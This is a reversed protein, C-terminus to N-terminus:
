LRIGIEYSLAILYCALWYLDGCRWWRILFPKLIIEGDKCFLIMLLLAGSGFWISLLPPLWTNGHSTLTLGPIVWIAFLPCLDLLRVKKLWRQHSLRKILSVIFGLLVLGIAPIIQLQFLASMSTPVQVMQM